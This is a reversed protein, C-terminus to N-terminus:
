CLKGEASFAVLPNRAPQLGRSFSLFLPAKDARTFSTGQSMKGKTWRKEAVRSTTGKWSVDSNSNAM